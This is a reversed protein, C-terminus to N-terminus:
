GFPDSNQIRQSSKSIEPESSPNATSSKSIERSGGGTKNEISGEERFKPFTVISSEKVKGTVTSFIPVVVLRSIVAATEDLGTNVNVGFENGIEITGPSEWTNLIVKLGAVATKSVPVISNVCLAGPEGEDNENLPVPSACPC